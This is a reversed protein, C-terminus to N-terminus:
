TEHRVLLTKFSDLWANTHEVVVRRRYREPDFFTDGDTKWDAARRNRPINAEIHRAACDQRFDNTDFGSDTKLFFSKGRIGVAALLSCIEAFLCRLEFTDRHNGVQPTACALPQGRNDTLVLANTSRAKKRGQYGVATGGNKVPTHSGDFQM